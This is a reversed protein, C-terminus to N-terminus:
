LYTLYSSYAPATFTWEITFEVINETDDTRYTKGSVRYSTGYGVPALEEIRTNIYDKLDALPYHPEKVARGNISVTGETSTGLDQVVPGDTKNVIVHSAYMAVPETIDRNIEFEKVGSPLSQASDLYTYSYDITGVDESQAISYTSPSLGLDYTGGYRNYVGSAMKIVRLKIDSWADIANSFRQTGRGLGEIHGDISVTIQGENDVDFSSDVTHRYAGSSLVFIQTVEYTGNAENANETRLLEYSSLAGSGQTFAPMFAPANDYGVLSLVYDKANELSNDGTAATNFGQASIGHEVSIIRQTDDESFSWSEDYTEIGSTGATAEKDLLEVNYNIKNVWVGEDFTVGQVTPYGSLIPVDNWTIQFLQNELALADELGKREAMMTNFNGSPVILVGNLSYTTEAYLLEEGADYHYATGKTMLPAPLFRYAGYYM